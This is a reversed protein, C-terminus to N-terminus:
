PADGAPEDPRTGARRRPPPDPVAKAALVESGAIRVDAGTATRVVLCDEQWQVLKGLVDTSRATGGSALARRVVVRRGVDLPTLTRAYRVGAAPQAGSFDPLPM